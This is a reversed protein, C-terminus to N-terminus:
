ERFGPRSITIKTLFDDEIVIEVFWFVGCDYDKIWFWFICSRAGVGRVAITAMGLKLSVRDLLLVGFRGHAESIRLISHNIIIRELIFKLWSHMFSHQINIVKGIDLRILKGLVYQSTKKEKVFFDITFIQLKWYVQVPVVLFSFKM